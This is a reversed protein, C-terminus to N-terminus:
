EHPTEPGNNNEKNVTKSPQNDDPADTVIKEYFNGNDDKFVNANFLMSETANAIDRFGHLAICANGFDAKEKESCPKAEQCFTELLVINEGAFKNTNILSNIYANM